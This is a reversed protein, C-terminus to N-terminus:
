PIETRAIIVFYFRGFWQYAISSLSVSRCCIRRHLEGESGGDMIFYIRCFSTDFQRGPILIAQLGYEPFMKWAVFGRWFLFPLISLSLTLADRRNKKQFFESVVLIAVAMLGTERVLISCAFCIAAIAFRRNLYFFIAGLLFAAAISEPLGLRLSVSFGPVCIFLLAWFPSRKYFLAIKAIFFAGVFSSIVILFIMVQPFREPQNMSAVATMLPFGIRGYRFPPTDIWKKYKILQHPFRQLFPDFAIFYMFQGDYGYDYIKLAKRLQPRENLFPNQKTTRTSLQLFGSYDGYQRYSSIMSSYFFLGVLLCAVSAAVSNRFSIEKPVKWLFRYIQGLVPLYIPLLFLLFTDFSLLIKYESLLPLMLMGLFLLVVPILLFLYGHKQLKDFGAIAISLILLFLVLLSLKSRANGPTDHKSIIVYDILGRSSGAYNRIEARDLVWNSGNAELRLLNRRQLLQANDKLPIRLRMSRHPEIQVNTVSNKNLFVNLQLLQTSNNRFSLTMWRLNRRKGATVEFPLVVSDENPTAALSQEILPIRIREFELDVVRHFAFVFYLSCVISLLLVANKPRNLIM